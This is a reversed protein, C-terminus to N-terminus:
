VSKCLIITVNDKGGNKLAEDVLQAGIKDFENQTIIEFIRKEEVM